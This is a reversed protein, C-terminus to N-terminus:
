ERVVLFDVNLRKISTTPRFPSTTDYELVVDEDSGGLSRIKSNSFSKEMDKEVLNKVRTALFDLADESKKVEEDDPFDFNKKIANQGLDSRMQVGARIRDQEYKDLTNLSKQELANTNNRFVGIKPGEDGHDPEDSYIFNKDKQRDRVYPHRMNPRLIDEVIVNIIERPRVM